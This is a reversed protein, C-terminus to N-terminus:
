TEHARLHTYSVPVLNSKVNGTLTLNALSASDRNEFQGSASDFVLIQNDVANNVNIENISNLTLSQAVNRVPTGIVVKKVFTTKGTSTVKIAM